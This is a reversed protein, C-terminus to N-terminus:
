GDQDEPPPPREGAADPEGALAGRRLDPRQSEEIFHRLQGVATELSSIRHEIPVPGPTAALQSRFVPVEGMIDKRDKSAKFDDLDKLEKSDKNEPKGEKEDKEPKTELKENKLEKNEGKEAKEDKGEKQEGKLDKAEKAEDKEAKENKLEKNEGKADKVEKEAKEDKGEKREGKADKNEKNEFKTEKNESKESGKRDKLEKGELKNPEKFEPLKRADARGAAVGERGAVGELAEPKEVKDKVVFSKDIGEAKENKGEKTEPKHDKLENKNEPKLDKLEDKEQKPEKSDKEPKLEKRDKDDKEPKGEKFEKPEKELKWLRDASPLRVNLAGLVDAIPNAVGYGADDGAVLLGVVQRADNVVVSGTDGKATFAPNRGDPKVGIQNTLTRRGIGDGYDLTLTLAVSDVTGFTLRTTRGRKRVAQGLTATNVGTLAGIEVVEPAVSRTTAGNALTDAVAADVTATLAHRRLTGIADGPCTAGDMRAPQAMPDGPNSGDDVCLVHFSSLVLFENSVNDAVIAGLTGAHVFGNIERCPGISIGGRLPDYASSDVPTALSEVPVSAGLQHLEFRREIVDTPHGDIEEPVRQKAPVKGRPKKETVLVRIALRDTPEGGVEKYGIDVGTVGPLALLDTEAREKAGRLESAVEAM